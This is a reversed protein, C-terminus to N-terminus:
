PALNERHKLFFTRMSWWPWQWQKRRHISSGMKPFRWLSNCKLFEWWVMSQNCRNMTLKWQKKTWWTNNEKLQFVIICLNGRVAIPTRAGRMQLMTPTFLCYKACIDAFEFNLITQLYKDIKILTIPTCPDPKVDQRCPFLAARVWTCKCMCRFWGVVFVTLYTTM